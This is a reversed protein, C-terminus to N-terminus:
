DSHDVESTNSAVSRKSDQVEMVLPPSSIPGPRDSQSRTLQQQQQERTSEFLASLSSPKYGIGVSSSARSRENRRRKLEEEKYYKPTRRVSSRGVKTSPNATIGSSMASAETTSQGERDPTGFLNRLSQRIGGQQGQRSLVLLNVQRGDIFVNVNSRNGSSGYMSDELVTKRKNYKPVFVPLQIALCCITILISRIMFSANPDASGIFLLPAGIIFTELLSVFSMFVYGAEFFETPIERALYAQYTAFLLAVVNVALILVVFPVVKQTEGEDYAARCSGVSEVARGHADFNDLPVREWTLPAVISWAVLLTLNITLLVLFPLM